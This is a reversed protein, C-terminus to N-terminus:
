PFDNQQGVSGGLRGSFSSPQVAWVDHIRRLTMPLSQIVERAKIDSIKATETEILAAAGSVEVTTAVQGVQLKMDVRQSARSALPLSEVVSDQFGAATVKLRYVGELLNVMLYNGADDSQATYRFNTGQNVAEVSARAVAAGSSDTVTGTLTAFNSQGFALPCLLPQVNVGCVALQDSRQECGRSLCVKGEISV